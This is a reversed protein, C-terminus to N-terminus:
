AHNTIKKDLKNKLLGLKEYGVNPYLGAYILPISLLGSAVAGVMTAETLSNGEHLNQFPIRIQSDDKEISETTCKSALYSISFDTDAFVYIGKQSLSDYIENKRHESLRHLLYSLGALGAGLVLLGAGLVLLNNYYKQNCLPKDEVLSRSVKKRLQRLITQEDLSCLKALQQIKEISSDIEKESVWSLYVANHLLNIKECLENIHEIPIEQKAAAHANPNPISVM